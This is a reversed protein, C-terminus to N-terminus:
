LNAARELSGAPLSIDRIYDTSGKTVCDMFHQVDQAAATFRGGGCRVLVPHLRDLKKLEALQEPKTIFGLELGAIYTELKNM